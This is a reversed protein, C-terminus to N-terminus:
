NRIETIFELKNYCLISPIYIPHCAFNVTTLKVLTEKNTFDLLTAEDGSWLSRPAEGVPSAMTICEKDIGERALSHTALTVRLSSRSPHTTFWPRAINM